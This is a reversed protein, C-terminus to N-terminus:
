HSVFSERFFDSSPCTVKYGLNESLLVFCLSHYDPEVVVFISIDTFNKFCDCFILLQINLLNVYRSHPLKSRYDILFPGWVVSQKWRCKTVPIKLVKLIVIQREWFSRMRIKISFGVRRPVEHYFNTFVDPNNELIDPHLSFFFYSEPM